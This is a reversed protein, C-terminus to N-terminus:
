LYPKSVQQLMCSVSCFNLKNYVISKKEVPVFKIECYYCTQKNEKEEKIEEPANGFINIYLYKVCKNLIEKCKNM